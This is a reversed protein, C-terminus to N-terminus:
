SPISLTIEETDGDTTLVLFQYEYISTNALFEYIGFYGMSDIPIGNVSIIEDGERIGAEWALSGENVYIIDSADYINIQLGTRQVGSDKIHSRDYYPVLKVVDESFKFITLYERFFTGGVAPWNGIQATIEDPCAMGTCYGTLPVYEVVESSDSNFVVSTFLVDPKQSLSDFMFSTIRTYAAGTDLLNTDQPVGEITINTFPRSAEYHIPITILGSSGNERTDYFYMLQNKYDFTMDFNKLLDIGILGNFYGDKSQTFASDSSWALFNNFCVNNEFCFSSIYVEGNSNGFIGAPVHTRTSGTDVLMDLYISNNLMAKVVFLMGHVLKAEVPTYVDGGSARPTATNDGGNGCGWLAFVFLFIAIIISRIILVNINQKM